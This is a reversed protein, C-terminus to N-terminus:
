TVKSPQQFRPERWTERSLVDALTTVADAVDVFRVYLPAFGFRLLAPSGARYDGVVGRDILAQMVAYTNIGEALSLAVQSGRQSADRPSHVQAQPCHTDVADIFAQTLAVSKRRLAAMGGLTDAARLTDIGCGLAALAVISPTGCQFQQIGPAPQYETTFAFPAAHGLWGTLPQTLQVHHRPHAWVFAPAGPGGNLYKYGCGVAFDAATGLLDVEIAGASHALDWVALAGVQHAWRTLKAMDHVRGSRYNVQTLMLVACHEDLLPEIEDPSDVLVLEGGHARCVSQAIYLDTPFNDRESVVKRRQGQQLSLAAHLVKYLNVSTSDAVLVEGARAGILPAIRDGLARPADIWGAKNWSEILDQGWEQQLVQAVRAPTAKPLAGLSNGDLYIRGPPLEFQERLARLPDHADRQLAEDRTM